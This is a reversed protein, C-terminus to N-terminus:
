ADETFDPYLHNKLTSALTGVTAGLRTHLQQTYTQNTDGGHQNFLM